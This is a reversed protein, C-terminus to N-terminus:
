IIWWNSGDCQLQANGFQSSIVKTLQLDILETGNPDIIVTNISVDIKKINYVRGQNASSPPLTITRNAATADVLITYDATTATYDTTKTVIGLQLGTFRGTNPTTSGIPGPSADNTGSTSKFGM